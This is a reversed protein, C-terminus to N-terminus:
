LFFFVRFSPLLYLSTVPCLSIAFTLQWGTYWCHYQFKLYFFFFGLPLPVMWCQRQYKWDTKISNALIQCESYPRLDPNRPLGSTQPHPKNYQAFLIFKGSGWRVHLIGTSEGDVGPIWFSPTNVKVRQSGICVLGLRPWLGSSFSLSRWPLLPPSAHCPQFSSEAGDDCQRQGWDVRSYKSIEPISQTNEM